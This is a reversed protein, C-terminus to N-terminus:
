NNSHHSISPMPPGQPALNNFYPTLFLVRLISIDMTSDHLCRQPSAINLSKYIIVNHLLGANSWLPQANTYIYITKIIYIKNNNQILQTYFM